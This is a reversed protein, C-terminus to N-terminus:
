NLRGAGCYVEHREGRAFGILTAGAADCLDFALASPASVSVIVPMRVRLCKIVLDFGARGSLV